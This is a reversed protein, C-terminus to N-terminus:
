PRLDLVAVSRSTRRAEAIAQATRTITADVPVPVRRLQNGDHIMRVPRTMRAPHYPLHHGTLGLPCLPADASAARMSVPLGGICRATAGCGAPCLACVTSRMTSPGKPPRPIWSWNQTWIALDDLAKWPAPTLMVGAVGGAGFRLVDRRTVNLKM